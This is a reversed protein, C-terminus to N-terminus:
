RSRAPVNTELFRTFLSYLHRTTNKGESISHSRSPYPMVTFQKDHAILGNMLKEVGQYHGNDDGTGHVLLLNGKLQSAYTLPSGRRYGEANDKPLGMYREQYISDYLLQDPNPAVAIATRYLDPFRFLAHLSSSGGGSWGWIGVRAPDVFPWRKLFGAHRGRM